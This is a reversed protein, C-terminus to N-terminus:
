VALDEPWTKESLCLNEKPFCYPSNYRAFLSPLELRAKQMQLALFSTGLKTPAFGATCTRMQYYESFDRRSRGKKGAGGRFKLDM